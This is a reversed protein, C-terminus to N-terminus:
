NKEDSIFDSDKAGVVGVKKSGWGREGTEDIKLEFELRQRRLFCQTWPLLGLLPFSLPSFSHNAAFIGANGCKNEASHCQNEKPDHGELTRSNELLRVFLFLFLTLRKSFGQCAAGGKRKMTSPISQLLNSSKLM